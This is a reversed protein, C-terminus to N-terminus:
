EMTAFESRFYGDARNESKSSARGSVCFSYVSLNNGLIGYYFNVVKTENEELPKAFFPALIDEVATISSHFDFLASQVSEPIEGQEDTM